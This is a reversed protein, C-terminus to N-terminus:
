KTDAIASPTIRRHLARGIRLHHVARMRKLCAGGRLLMGLRKVLPAITEIPTNGYGLVVGNDQAQAAM